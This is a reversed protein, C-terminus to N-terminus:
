KIGTKTHEYHLKGSALEELAESVPKGEEESDREEEMIARARKAVAVVLTYKSDVKELLLDLPPQNM